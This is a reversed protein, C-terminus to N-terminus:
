RRKKFLNIFMPLISQITIKAYAKDQFRRYFVLSRGILLLMYKIATLREKYRSFYLSESKMISKYRQLSVKEEFSEISLDHSIKTDFVYINKNDRGMQHYLWHDLYDLPFDNNFGGISQLYQVSVCTGSNLAMINNHPGCDLDSLYGNRKMIGNKLFVPSVIKDGCNIKPVCAVFDTPSSLLFDRLMDFYTQNLESDQDLLLLWDNKNNKAM